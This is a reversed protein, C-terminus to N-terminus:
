LEVTLGASVSRGPATYFALDTADPAVGQVVGWNWYRRDALNMVALNLQLGARPEFWAYADFVAHGPPRFLPGASEDVRRKAATATAVAELGWRGDGADFRLGAVLSAPDIGSLPVARATDDGRTWAGALRASWGRTLDLGAEFELGRITARDRNVSQFVLAGSAPDIGLNARSEILDRYRNRYASVTFDYRDSARRWGVEVGESREPVLDPNPRVEYNFVPLSLGINVDSFPPARFGRAYQLFLHSRAGLRYRVGLKPTASTTAVDVVPQDPFDERFVPDPRADLERRELRVGPIVSWRGVGIEDQWFAAVTTAVTDPFDRVPFSEGLVVDTTVGTVLDTESGDRQGTYRTRALEVGFVQWHSVDGTAARAQGVLELGAEAQHFRHRRERLTENPTVADPIRYQLSDQRVRSTQHYALTEFRGAAHAVSVRDRAHRDDADLRSTTAFRGPGFRASRVDTRRDEDGHELTFEFRGADGAHVLKALAADRRYDLPNPAAHNDTAGGERRAGTVLAHWGDAHGGVVTAAVLHSDDRGGWAVRAIPARVDEPDRTTIAVIGALADSGYLTSAPGRMVEVREIVALDAVDRGASAFQGVAFADPVPIGDIEVRVRNGGLGRISFGSRGFRAADADVRLGPLYRAIGEIDQELRRELTERGIVSVSAAVQEIPEPARSAVVVVTGEADLSADQASASVAATALLWILCKRAIAACNSRACYATGSM